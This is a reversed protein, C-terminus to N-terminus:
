AKRIQLVQWPNNYSRGKPDSVQQGGAAAALADM